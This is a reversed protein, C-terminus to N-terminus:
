QFSNKTPLPHHLGHHNPEDDNNNDDNDDDEIMNSRCLPCTKNKGSSVWKILCSTHMRHGCKTLSMDKDKEKLDDLCCCCQLNECEPTAM